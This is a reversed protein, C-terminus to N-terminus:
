PDVEPNVAKTASYKGCVLKLCHNSLFEHSSKDTIHILHFPFHFTNQQIDFTKKNMHPIITHWKVGCAISDGRNCSLSSFIFLWSNMWKNYCIWSSGNQFSVKARQDRLDYQPSSIHLLILCLIMSLSTGFTIYECTNGAREREYIYM